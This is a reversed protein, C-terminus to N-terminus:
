PAPLLDPIRGTMRYAVLGIWARIADDLERWRQAADPVRLTLQGTTRYDVPYALVPWGVQRFCGVARPIHSASTVLVASARSRHQSPRPSCHTRTTNRAREEFIVRAGDLGQDRVFGRMVTAESLDSGTVWSPGGSFVVRADPYSRALEIMSSFREGTDGFTVLERHKSVDLDVGGGLVVIGEIDRPPEAPAPFRNELPALLWLGVPLVSILLLAAAGPYLLWRAVKGRGLLLALVGAVVVCVILNSPQTLVWLIKSAYYFM